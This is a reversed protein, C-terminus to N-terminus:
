YFVLSDDVGNGEDDQIYEYKGILQNSRDWLTITIELLYRETDELSFVVKISSEKLEITKLPVSVEEELFANDEDNICNNYKEKAKTYLLTFEHKSIEVIM